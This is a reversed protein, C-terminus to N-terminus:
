GAQDPKAPSAPADMVAADAPSNGDAADDQCDTEAVALRDAEAGDAPSNGDAADAPRDAAITQVPTPGTEAEGGEGAVAPEDAETESPHAVAVRAPRLVKGQIAYGPQFVDAVSIVAYGPKDVTLLAEHVHPDFPDGAAGYEALGYKQVVKALEDALLKAGGTLEDHARAATIGDLVPLLDALVAEVGGQRAQARDRDVRKKYNAYEAQLRQLDATREALLDPPAAAVEDSAPGAAGPSDRLEEVLHELADDWDPEPALPDTM